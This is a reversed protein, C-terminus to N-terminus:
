RNALGARARVLRAQYRVRQWFTAEDLTWRRVARTVLWDIIAEAEAPAHRALQAAYFAPDDKPGIPAAAWLPPTFGPARHEEMPSSRSTAPSSPTAIM